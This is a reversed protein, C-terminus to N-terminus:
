WPNTLGEFYIIKLAKLVNKLRKSGRFFDVKNYLSMYISLDLATLKPIRNRIHTLTSVELDDFM